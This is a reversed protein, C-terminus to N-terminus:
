VGSSRFMQGSYWGEWGERIAPHAKAISAVEWVPPKKHPEPMLLGLARGPSWIASNLFGQCQQFGPVQEMMVLSLMMLRRAWSSERRLLLLVKSIIIRPYPKVIEM